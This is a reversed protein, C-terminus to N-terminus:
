FVGDKRYNHIANRGNISLVEAPIAWDGATRWQWSPDLHEVQHAAVHLGFQIGFDLLSIGAIKGNSPHQGLISNGEVLGRGQGVSTSHADAALTGGIVAVGVWLTKSKYWHQHLRPQVWVDYDAQSVNSELWTWPKKFQRRHEQASLLAPALVCVVLFMLIKRM